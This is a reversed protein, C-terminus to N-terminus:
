KEGKGRERLTVIKDRGKKYRILIGKNELETLLQSTKAKSFRCRETIESQKLSGGSLKLLKVIKEEESEIPALTALMTLQESVRRRRIFYFGFISAAAIASIVLITLYQQLDASLLNQSNTTLVVNVKNAVLDETRSWRLTDTSDQRQYPQPTVTQISFQQPYTLQLAADGFLKTFFDAVQFVDGFSLESGTILSFNEWRFSYETTKSESSITTNIQISGDDIAMPRHTVNSASDVLGYIKNQFNEWSEVLAVANSFQSITWYASGDSQIQVSYEYYNQAKVSVLPFILVLLLLCIAFCGILRRSKM